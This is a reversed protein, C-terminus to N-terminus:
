VTRGPAFTVLSLRYSTAHSSDIPVLVFSM